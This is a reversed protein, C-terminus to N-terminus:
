NSVRHVSGDSFRVVVGLDDTPKPPKAAPDISMVFTLWEDIDASDKTNWLQYQESFSLRREQETMVRADRLVRARELLQPDPGCPSPPHLSIVAGIEQMLDTLRQGIAAYGSGAMRVTECCYALRVLVLDDPDNIESTRRRAEIEKEGTESAKRVLKAMEIIQANSMAM